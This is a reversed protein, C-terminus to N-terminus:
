RAESGECRHPASPPPIMSQLFPMLIEHAQLADATSQYGKTRDGNGDLESVIEIKGTTTKNHADIVKKFGAVRLVQFNAKKFDLVLVKGGLM